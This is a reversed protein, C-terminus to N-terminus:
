WKPFLICEFSQCFQLVINHLHTTLYLGM